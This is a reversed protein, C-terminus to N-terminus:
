IQKRSNARKNVESSNPPGKIDSSLARAHHKVDIMSKM